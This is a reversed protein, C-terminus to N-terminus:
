DSHERAEEQSGEDPEGEEIKSEKGIAITDLDIKEFTARKRKNKSDGGKRTKDLAVKQEKQEPSLYKFSALQCNLGLSYVNKNTGYNSVNISQLKYMPMGLEKIYDSLSFLRVPHKVISTNGNSDYVTADPKTPLKPIFSQIFKPEFNMFTGEPFRQKLDAAILSNLTKGILWYDDVNDKFTRKIDYCARNDEESLDPNQEDDPNYLPYELMEMKKSRGKEQTRFGASERTAFYVFVWEDNLLRAKIGYNHRTTSGSTYPQYELQFQIANARILEALHSMYRFEYRKTTGTGEKRPICTSLATRETM